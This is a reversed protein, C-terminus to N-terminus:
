SLLSLPRTDISSVAPQTSDRWPSLESQFPWALALVEGTRHVSLVRNQEKTLNMSSYWYGITKVRFDIPGATGGRDPTPRPCRTERLRSPPPHLRPVIPLAGSWTRRDTEGDFGHPARNRAYEVGKAWPAITGATISSM